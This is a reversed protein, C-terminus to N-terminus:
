SRFRGTKMVTGATFCRGTGHTWCPVFRWRVILSSTPWPWPPPSAAFLSTRGARWGRSRPSASVCAPLPARALSAGYVDIDEPRLGLERLVQAVMPMLKQSHTLKDDLYTHALLKDEELVAVTAVSCSTDM